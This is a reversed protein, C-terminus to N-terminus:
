QWGYELRLTGPLRGHRMEDFSKELRKGEQVRTIGYSRIDEILQDCVEDYDVDNPDKRQLKVMRVQLRSKRVRGLIEANDALAEAEDWLADMEPILMNHLFARPNEYIGMHMNYKMVHNSLMDIYARIPAAAKGYFGTLFENMWQDVNGYPEWMLKSILYARLEGFEGSISEGNGQEFLGTVNNELFFQINSQLVHLNVMPAIYFRFNTTYDWVVLHTAIRSWDALDKQFSAGPITSPTFPLMTQRCDKMPHSFCCEISCIRVSVNPSPKTIKPAQRTHQYAFTDILM